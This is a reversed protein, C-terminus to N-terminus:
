VVEDEANWLRWNEEAQLMLMEYGDKVTAGKIRGERLFATENPGYVLDYFYHQSTVFEYPIAPKSNENPAMGLPSCNIVILHENMLHQTVAAYNLIGKEAQGVRSVLTFPVSCKHLIYQVAKSAGGTGLVLAKEHYAKRLPMFSKEFGVVDTNFGTLKGAKFQICNIAGVKAAEPSINDLFPIIAQKHPITVALGRLAENQTLLEPFQNIDELPFLNFHCDGLGENEFKATFYKKSFSHGLPYGILGYLKM